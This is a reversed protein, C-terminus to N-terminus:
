SVQYSSAFAIVLGFVMGSFLTIGIGTSMYSSLEGTFILAAFSISVIVGIAGILLGAMLNAALRDTKFENLVRRNL